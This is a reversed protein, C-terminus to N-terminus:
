TYGVQVNQVVLKYYKGHVNFYYWCSLGAVCEAAVDLTKLRVVLPRKHNASARRWLRHDYREWLLEVWFEIVDSIYVGVGTTKIKQM